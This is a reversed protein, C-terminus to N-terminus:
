GGGPLAIHPLRVCCRISGGHLGLCHHGPDAQADQETMTEGDIMM